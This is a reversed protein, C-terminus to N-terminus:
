DCEFTCGAGFCWWGKGSSSVGSYWAGSATRCNKPIARWIGLLKPGAQYLCNFEGDTGFSTQNLPLPLPNPPFFNPLERWDPPVSVQGTAMDMTAPCSMTAAHAPAAGLSAGLPVGLPALLAAILLERRM